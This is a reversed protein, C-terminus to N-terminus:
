EKIYFVIRTVFEEELRSTIYDNLCFEYSDSIIEYHNDDCFKILKEYSSDIDEYPGFHYIYAIKGKALLKVNKVNDIKDITLYAINAEIYKGKKIHELPVSVGSQFFIPLNDSLGQAYCLKTAISIEKLSYPKSVENYLIYTDEIEGIKAESDKYNLSADLAKLRHELRNKILALENIKNEIVTLQDKLFVLSNESNYNQMHKKIDNLSFGIKKMILITDLYDLQDASYYRYGNDDIIHPKFLGIKDYYLLTQKNINQYKALEGASFMNKM